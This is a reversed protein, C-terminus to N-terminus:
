EYLKLKDFEYKLDAIVVPLLRAYHKCGPNTWTVEYFKEGVESTVSKFNIFNDHFNIQFQGMFIGAGPLKAIIRDVLKLDDGRDIFMRSSAKPYVYYKHFVLDGDVYLQLHFDKMDKRCQFKVKVKSRM